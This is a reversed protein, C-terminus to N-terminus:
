HWEAGPVAGVGVSGDPILTPPDINSWYERSLKVLVKLEIHGLRHKTDQNSILHIGGPGSRCHLSEIAVQVISELVRLGPLQGIVEEDRVGQSKQIEVPWTKGSYWLCPFEQQM